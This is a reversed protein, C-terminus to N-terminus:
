EYGFLVVVCHGTISEKQPLAENAKNM